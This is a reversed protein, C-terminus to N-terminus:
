KIVKCTELQQLRLEIIKIKTEDESLRTLLVRSSHVEEIVQDMKSQMQSAWWVAGFAFAVAAGISGLQVYSKDSLKINATEDIKM